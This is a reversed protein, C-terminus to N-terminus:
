EPRGITSDRAILKPEILLHKARRKQNCNVMSLVLQAAEEGQRQPSQDITSLPVELYMSLRLNGCGIVAVDEPVRFNHNLLCRIAGVATLDNYCFVADPPRSLKLLDSMAHDGIQIGAEELRSRVVVLEKRFPINSAALAERYGNLRDVSTSVREGGIHAIRKRGLEILHGTALRGAAIDDTGVFFANLKPLQRDLLIYPIKSEVLSTFGSKGNQCSAVLLADVGRALLHEIERKELEPEEEASALILQYSEKRLGASVGKALEAFFTHVLDPVILGISYSKGSALGRALMNPQYNLERVRQLVRKRTADGVDTKNRLVKSVTVLSVGLDEAIDKMRVAM